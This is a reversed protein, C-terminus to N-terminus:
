NLSPDHPLDDRKLMPGLVGATIDHGVKRWLDDQQYFIYDRNAPRTLWGGAELEAELQGGGWGAYGSFLRFTVAPSRVIQNLHDRHTALHVGPLVEAESLQEANHLAMLPGVVPGGVNISETSETPAEGVQSWVDQVTTSSPRNLVIGFAGDGNHEVLLVVTERFNPDALQRSAVLLHGKLSTM